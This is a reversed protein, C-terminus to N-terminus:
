EKLGWAHADCLHKHPSTQLCLWRNVFRNLIIHYLFEIFWARWANCPFLLTQRHDFSFDLRSLMYMGFFYVSAENKHGFLVKHVKEPKLSFWGQHLKIQIAIQWYWYERTEFFLAFMISWTGSSRDSVNNWKKVQLNNVNTTLEYEIEEWSSNTQLKSM